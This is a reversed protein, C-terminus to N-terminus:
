STEEFAPDDTILTFIDADDDPTLAGFTVPLNATDNRVLQTEVAETVSGRPFHARYHKDGDTWEILLAREDIESAEPPTYTYNGPATETVTGGGYAFPVTDVNLQRLTFAVTVNRNTVIRRVPDMAQWARIDQIEKGVSLTVGDETAYGLERWDADLVAEVDTTSVATGIPAVMIRGEPAIVLEDTDKGPM